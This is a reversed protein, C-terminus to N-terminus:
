VDRLIERAIVTRQIESTGEYITTVKADRFLREVPYDRMYGYGGFIQVAETTVYMATESAFLKAMSTKFTEKEGREKATAVDKLLGRAAALRTAMDALKFQIAQFEAIPREFQQREKAYRVAHELAARGIGVAQAAIGLRGQDLGALAYRFGKGAEGLLHESSLRVNHLELQTTPSSRLGMKDERKGPRVGPTDSPVLFSSIGDKGRFDDPSDTRAMLVFLQATDGNTVWTKVGNLVWADGDPEARTRLGAADSGSDAESLAFAALVEGRAMRPLWTQKQRETGEALLMSVPLSNHVALTVAVSADAAAIEEIVMLYTLPDLGLGDYEEPVTMGLFGLEGLKGIVEAPYEKTRDWEAAHPAIEQRAFDRAVSLIESRIELLADTAPVADTTPM